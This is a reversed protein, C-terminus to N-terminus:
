DATMRRRKEEQMATVRRVVLIALVTACILLASALLYWLLAGSSPVQTQDAWVFLAIVGTLGSAVWLGWWWKLLPAVSGYKWDIRGGSSLDPASGKWIEAMAEYPRSLNMIPIFWWGVAWGPSFRQGLAGLFRINGSARHIWVLFLIVTPICVVILLDFMTGVRDHTDDFEPNMLPALRGHESVIDLLAITQIMYLGLVVCTVVLLGTTWNALARTSVKRVPLKASPASVTPEGAVSAQPTRM